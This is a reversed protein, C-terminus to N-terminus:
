EVEVILEPHLWARMANEQSNFYYAFRTTPRTKKVFEVVEIDM